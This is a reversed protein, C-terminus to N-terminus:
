VGLPVFRDSRSGSDWSCLGRSIRSTATSHRRAAPPTARSRRIPGTTRTTSFTSCKWGSKRPVIGFAGSRRLVAYTGEVTDLRLGPQLGNEDPGDCRFSYDSLINRVDWNDDVKRTVPAPAQAAIRMLGELLVPSPLVFNARYTRQM